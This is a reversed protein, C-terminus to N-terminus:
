QQMPEKIEDGIYIQCLCSVFDSVLRRMLIFYMDPGPPIDIGIPDLTGSYYQGDGTLIKLHSSSFQPESFICHAKTAQLKQQIERLRRAGPKRDPNLTVSGAAKLNYRHEFYQYADHFVIHPKNIAAVAVDGLELHLNELRFILRKANEQYQDAREADIKSLTDAVAQAIIKANFPDLWLHSDINEPRQTTHEQDHDHLASHSRTEWIGGSRLPLLLLKPLAIIKIIHQRSSANELPRKLFGEAEEGLWFIVDAQSLSRMHSPKLRTNHLSAGGKILLEPTSIGGMVGAVLSHIPAMSVVVKPPEAASGSIPSALIFVWLIFSIRLIM